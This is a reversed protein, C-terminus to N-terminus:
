FFTGDIKLRSELRKMRTDKKHLERFRAQTNRYELRLSLFRSRLKKTIEDKNLCEQKLKIIEADKDTITEDKNLCEQKLKIIEADKRTITSNLDDIQMERIKVENVASAVASAVASDIAEQTERKQKQMMEIFFNDTIFDNRTTKVKKEVPTAVEKVFGAFTSAVAKRKLSPKSVSSSSLSPTPSSSVSTNSEGELPSALLVRPAYSIRPLLKNNAFNNNSAM